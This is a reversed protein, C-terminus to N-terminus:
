LQSLRLNGLLYSIGVCLGRGTLSTSVCIYILFVSASRLRLIDVDKKRVCDRITSSPVDFEKAARLEGTVPSLKTPSSPFLDMKM